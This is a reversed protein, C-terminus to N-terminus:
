IEVGGFLQGGGELPLKDRDAGIDDHRQRQVQRDADGALKAESVGSERADAREGSRHDDM